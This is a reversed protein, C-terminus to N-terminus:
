IQLTEVSTVYGSNVSIKSLTRYHSVLFGNNNNTLGGYQLQAQCETSRNEADRIFSFHYLPGRVLYDELPECSLEYQGSNISAELWRQTIFKGSTGIFASSFNNTPKTVNGFTLQIFRLDLAEAKVQGTFRSTPVLTTTGSEVAQIFSTLAITSSPITFNFTNLSAGLAMTKNQINMEILPVYYSGDNFPKTDKFVSLFLQVEEVRIRSTTSQNTRGNSADSEIGSVTDSKPFLSIRYAGSPLALDTNFIGVPPQFCVEISNDNSAATSTVLPAYKTIPRKRAYILTLAPIDTAPPQVVTGIM